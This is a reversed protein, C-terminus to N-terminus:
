AISESSRVGPALQVDAPHGHGAWAARLPPSAGPRCGPLPPDGGHRGRAGREGAADAGHGNGPEETARQWGELTRGGKRRSKGRRTAIANGRLPWPTRGDAPADARQTVRGECPQWKKQTPHNRQRAFRIWCELSLASRGKRAARVLQKLVLTNDVDERAAEDPDAVEPEEGVPAARGLQCPTPGEEGRNRRLSGGRGFGHRGEHKAQGAYVDRPARHAARPAQANHAEYM